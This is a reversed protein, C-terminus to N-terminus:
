AEPLVPCSVVESLNAVGVDLDPNGALLVKPRVPVNFLAHTHQAQRYAVGM